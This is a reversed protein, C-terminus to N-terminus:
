SWYGYNSITQGGHLRLLRFDCLLHCVFSGMLEGRQVVIVDPFCQLECNRREGLLLMGFPSLTRGHQRVCDVVSCYIQVVVDWRRLEIDDSRPAVTIGMLRVAFPGFLRGTAGGSTGCGRGPFRSIRM